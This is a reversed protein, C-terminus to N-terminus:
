SFAEAPTLYGLVKLPTNNIIYQIWDIHQKTVPRVSPNKPLFARIRSNLNEVAGKQWPSHPNCFYTDLLLEEHKAFEKGRDFTVSKFSKGSSELAVKIKTIVPASAKSHNDILWCYRSKREILSIINRGRVSSLILLDGECHGFEERNNIYSPRESIPVLNRITNKKAGKPFYGRKKKQRRLYQHLGLNLGEQSFIFKYITEPSITLGLEKNNRLRGAIAGPSWRSEKIKSVVYNFLIANSFKTKNRFLTAVYAEEAQVAKYLNPHSFRRLERSITSKHRALIISIESVKYGLGYLDEIKKREELTLRNYSQM